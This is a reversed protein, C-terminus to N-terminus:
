RFDRLFDERAKRYMKDFCHIFHQLNRKLPRDHGNLVGSNRGNRFEDCAGLFILSQRGISGHGHAPMGATDAAKANVRLNVEIRDPYFLVYSAIKRNSDSRRKRRNCSLKTQGDQCREGGTRHVV